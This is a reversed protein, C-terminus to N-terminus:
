LGRRAASVRRARSFRESLIRETESIIEPAKKANGSGRNHNRSDKKANGPCTNLKKVPGSANGSGKNLNGCLCFDNGTLKKAKPSNKPRLAPKQPSM